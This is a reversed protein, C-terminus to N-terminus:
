GDILKAIGDICRDMSYRDEVWQRCVVPDIAKIDKLENFNAWLCELPWLKEAGPWHHVMPTLGMAMAEGISMGFSETVSTSLLFRKDELFEATDQWGHWTVNPLPLDNFYHEIKEEQHTGAIHFQREPMSAMLTRLLTPGKKHNIYGVYAIDENDAAPQLQYKDLDIGNHIVHVPVTVGKEEVLEKFGESVVVLADVVSWNIHGLYGGWAEYAHLRIIIRPPNLLHRVFDTVAIANENCFDVFIARPRVRLLMDVASGNCEKVPIVKEDPYREALYPVLSFSEFSDFVVITM